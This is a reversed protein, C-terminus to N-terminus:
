IEMYNLNRLLGMCKCPTIHHRLKNHSLMRAIKKMNQAIATLLCQEAVKKIGQFRACGMHIKSYAFSREITERRRKYRLKTCM